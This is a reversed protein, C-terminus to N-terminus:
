SVSPNQVPKFDTASLSIRIPLNSHRGQMANETSRKLNEAIESVASLYYKRNKTRELINKTEMEAVIREATRLSVGLGEAMDSKAFVFNRCVWRVAALSSAPKRKGESMEQEWRAASNECETECVLLAEHASLLAKAHFEIALESDGNKYQKFTEYYRSLESQYACSVPLPGYGAERLHRQMLVRGTRGNGDVFPHISEFQSHSLAIKAAFPMDSRASMGLWDSILDAIRDAPPNYSGGVGSIKDALTRFRGAFSETKMIERQYALIQEETVPGFHNRSILLARLNGRVKETDIDSSIGAEAQCLHKIHSSVGEIKSSCLAEAMLVISHSMAGAPSLPETERRCAETESVLRATEGTLAPAPVTRTFPPIWHSVGNRVEEASPPWISTQSAM